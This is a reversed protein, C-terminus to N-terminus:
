PTYPLAAEYGEENQDYGKEITWSEFSKPEEFHEKSWRVYAAYRRKLGVQTYRSADTDLRRQILPWAVTLTPSLEPVEGTEGYALIAEFLQGKEADPLLRLMGRLEFYVMVGPKKKMYKEGKAKKILAMIVCINAYILAYFECGKSFRKGLSSLIGAM